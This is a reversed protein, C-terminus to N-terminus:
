YTSKYLYVPNAFNLKQWISPKKLGQRLSILTFSVRRFFQWVNKSFDGLQHLIFEQYHNM